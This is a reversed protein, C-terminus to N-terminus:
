DTCLMRNIFENISEGEQQQIVNGAAANKSAAEIKEYFEKESMKSKPKVEKVSTVGKLQRVLTKLTKVISPNEVDIILQTTYGNSM